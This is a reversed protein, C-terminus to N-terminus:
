WYKRITNVVDSCAEGVAVMVLMTSAVVMLPSLLSRVVSLPHCHHCWGGGDAIVVVVGVVVVTLVM